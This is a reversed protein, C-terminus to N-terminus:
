PLRVHYPVIHREMEAQAAALEAPLQNLRDILLNIETQTQNLSEYMADLTAPSTRSGAANTYDQWMSEFRQVLALYNAFGTGYEVLLEQHVGASRDYADQDLVYADRTIEVVKLAISPKKVSCYDESFNNDGRTIFSDPFSGFVRRVIRHIIYISQTGILSSVGTIGPLSSVDPCDRQLDVDLDSFRFTVIDGIELPTEPLVVEYRVLDGCDIVPRMSGTCAVRAPLDWVSIGVNQQIWPLTRRELLSQDLYVAGAYYSENQRNFGQRNFGVLYEISSHSPFTMVVRKVTREGEEEPLYVRLQLRDGSNTAALETVQPGLVPVTTPTPVPRPTATRTPELTPTPVPTPTATPIPTPTLTPTPKAVAAAQLTAEPTAAAEQGTDAPAAPLTEPPAPAACGVLALLWVVWLTAITQGLPLTM